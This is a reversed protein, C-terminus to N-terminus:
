CSASTAGITVGSVSNASHLCRPCAKEECCRLQRCGCKARDPPKNVWALEARPQQRHLFRAHCVAWNEKGKSCASSATSRHLTNQSRRGARPFCRNEEMLYQIVHQQRQNMWGALSSSFPFRIWALTCRRVNNRLGDLMARRVIEIVDFKQVSRSRGM